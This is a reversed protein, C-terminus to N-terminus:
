LKIGRQLCDALAIASSVGTQRAHVRSAFNRWFFAVRRGLHNVTVAFRGLGLDNVIVKFGKPLRQTESM